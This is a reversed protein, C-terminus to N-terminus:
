DSFSWKRKMIGSSLMKVSVAVIDQGLLSSHKRGAHELGAHEIHPCSLHVRQLPPASRSRSYGDNNVKNNGNHGKEPQSRIEQGAKTLSITNNEM